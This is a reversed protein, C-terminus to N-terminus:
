LEVFVVSSPASVNQSASSSLNKQLILDELFPQRYIQAIVIDMPMSIYLSSIECFGVRLCLVVPLYHNGLFPSDAERLSLGITSYLNTLGSIVYM